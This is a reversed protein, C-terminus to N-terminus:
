PEAANRRGHGAAQLTLGAVDEDIVKDADFRPVRPSASVGPLTRRPRARGDCGDAPLHFADM